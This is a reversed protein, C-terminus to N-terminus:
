ILPIDENEEDDGNDELIDQILQSMNRIETSVKFSEGEKSVLTVTSM